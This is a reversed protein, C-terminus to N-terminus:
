TDTETDEPLADLYDELRDLRATWDARLRDLWDAAIDIGKPNARCIRTRGRKETVVLGGDELKQLHKMITPMAMKTPAALETVSAPGATLQQVMGRRTPDSLALFLTNLNLDYKAM